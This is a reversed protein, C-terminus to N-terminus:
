ILAQEVYFQRADALLEVLTGLWDEKVVAREKASADLRVSKVTM